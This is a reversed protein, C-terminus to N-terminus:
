AAVTSVATTLVGIKTVIAGGLATFAAVAGAAVLSGAVAYEVMTLGEEDKLFTVIFKKMQDVKNRTTVFVKNRITGLANILRGKGAPPARQLKSDAFPAQRDLKKGPSSKRVLAFSSSYSKHALGACQHANSLHCLM